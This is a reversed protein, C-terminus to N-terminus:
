RIASLAFSLAARLTGFAPIDGLTFAKGAILMQALEPSMGSILCRAGLLRASQVLRALYGAIAIDQANLGTLDVITFKAASRVIASLLAETMRAAREEDVRGMVPMMVIGEAIDLVPASLEEITKKQERERKRLEEENRRQETVDSIMSAVSIVMGSSDVLPTNHWDCVIMRGDRRVNENVSTVTSRGELLKAWVENVLPRVAEPVLVLGKMGLAEQESYGFIREAAPNWAAVTFDKTWEIIGMSTQQVHLSLREESRFLAEEARRRQTIDIGIGFFYAFETPTRFVSRGHWEVHLLHGDKALAVNENVTTTPKSMLQAFVQALKERGAPPVFIPVYPKGIVEERTYGLAHLMAQNIRLTKGEADIAVCFVPLTDIVSASAELDDMWFEGVTSEIM